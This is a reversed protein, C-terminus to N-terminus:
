APTPSAWHRCTGGAPPRTSRTARPRRRRYPHGQLDARQDDRDYGAALQGPRVHDVDARADARVPHDVFRPGEAKPNATDTRKAFRVLGQQDAGNVRPFEGGFVVYEGNHRHREVGAQGQGTFTGIALDPLWNVMSPGPERRALEPLRPRRQPHGRGATDSWAQANQFRWTSYQPHGGGMNGCYHAHGATYVVGNPLFSSYIDGHCDTVWEVDSRDTPGDIPSKFVGELNGGPGFHWATGYVISNQM